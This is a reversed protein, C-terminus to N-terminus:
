KGGDKDTELINLREDLAAILESFGAGEIEAVRADLAKLKKIIGAGAYTEDETKQREEKEFVSEDPAHAKVIQEVQKEDAGFPVVLVINTPERNENYDVQFEVGKGLAARLEDELMDPDFKKPLSSKLILKTPGEKVENVDAELDAEQIAKGM